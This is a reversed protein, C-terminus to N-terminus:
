HEYKKGIMFGTINQLFILPVKRQSCLEVFNAGKQASESFLIGNNAVIGVPQNYLKGFGTVLTSGYEKKYEEFNSGDLLRALVSRSDFTKKLDPSVIYNLESPDYLPEEINSFDFNTVPTNM